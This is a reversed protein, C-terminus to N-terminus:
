PRERQRPRSGGFGDDEPIQYDADDFLYLDVDFDDLGDNNLHFAVGAKDVMGALPTRDKAGTIREEM